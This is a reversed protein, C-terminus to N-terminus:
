EALYQRSFTDVSLVTCLGPVGSRALLDRDDSVLVQARGAPLPWTM